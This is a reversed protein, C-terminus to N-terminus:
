LTQLAKKILAEVGLEPHQELVRQIAVDAAQRNIGLAILANLADTQLSNGKWPSINSDVPTKALKDRLELVIREATKKGIGKIRELQPANGQVIARSLEDPKMYSLMIRATSAGVGSVAILLLFMEKEAVESFGFLIHADERVLLHTLLLGSEANQIKSYTNLTIQVEYGVGAVDVLVVSPTKKVFEGKLFAIM